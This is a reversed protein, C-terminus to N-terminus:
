KWYPFAELPHHVGSNRTQRKPGDTALLWATGHPSKDPRSRLASRGDAFVHFSQGVRQRRM